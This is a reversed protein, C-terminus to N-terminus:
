FVKGCRESWIVLFYVFVRAGGLLFVIDKFFGVKIYGFGLFWFGSSDPHKNEIEEVLTSLITGQVL